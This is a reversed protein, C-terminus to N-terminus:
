RLEIIGVSPRSFLRLQPAQARELGVGTSVYIANGDVQHLGGRAVHRPVRTLTVLPGFGPVVVQGGHTHGAVTLDVRGRAPLDLLADPRHAVLIRITGDDPGGELDRRLEVAAPAQYSLRNGGLRLSRDGVEIDVTEDDLIVIGTGRVARDARDDPDTDGRVLYTGGPADLRGLLARLEAENADFQDHSGQFLDGPLLIVDPEEALLLDVAAHEHRGVDNTQLDSLVGIRITDDGARRPDLALSARDVRLRYPEVHTAYWGVAAPLVLLVGAAAWPRALAEGAVSRVVLAAGVMPVSVVLALYVLHVVGFSRLGTAVLLGLGLAVVAGLTALALATTRFGDGDRAVRWAVWAGLGGAVLAVCTVGTTISVDVGPLGLQDSEGRFRRGVAIVAQDVLRPQDTTARAPSM